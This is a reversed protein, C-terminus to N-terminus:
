TKQNEHQVENESRQARRSETNMRRMQEVTAKIGIAQQVSEVPSHKPFQKETRLKTRSLARRDRSHYQRNQKEDQGQYKQRTNEQSHTWNGIERSSKKRAHPLFKHRKTRTAIRNAM